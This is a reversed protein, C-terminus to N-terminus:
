DPYSTLLEPAAAEWTFVVGHPHRHALADEVSLGCLNKVLMRGVMEHSVVLVRDAHHRLIVDVADRARRDLDEYSEGGPFRWRYRDEERRQWAAQEGLEAAAMGGYTGHHMEALEDVIVVEVGMRQAAIEATTRARGLPSTLVVGIGVSALSEGLQAAQTLGLPTLPSDLHGQKRGVRNWETEGHRALFLTSAM